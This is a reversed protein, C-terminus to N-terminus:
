GGFGCEGQREDGLVGDVQKQGGLDSAYAATSRIEASQTEQVAGLGAVM